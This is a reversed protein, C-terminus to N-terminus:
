RKDHTKMEDHIHTALGTFGVRPDYAEGGLIAPISCISQQPLYKSKMNEPVPDDSLYVRLWSCGLNLAM